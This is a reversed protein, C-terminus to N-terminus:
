LCDANVNYSKHSLFIPIWSFIALDKILKKLFWRSTVYYTTFCHRICCFLFTKSFVSISIWPLYLTKSPDQNKSHKPGPKRKSLLEPKKSHLFMCYPWNVALEFNYYIKDYSGLKNQNSYMNEDVVHVLFCLTRTDLM